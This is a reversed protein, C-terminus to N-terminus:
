SDEGAQRSQKEQNPPLNVEADLLAMRLEQNTKLLDCVLSRLSELKFKMELYSDINWRNDPAHLAESSDMNEGNNRVTWVTLNNAHVFDFPDLLKALLTTV